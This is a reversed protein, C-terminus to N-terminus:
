DLQARAAEVAEAFGALPMTVSVPAEASFPFFRIDLTESADLAELVAAPTERLARCGDPFCVQYPIDITTDGAVLRLGAELAMGLPLAAGLSIDGGGRPVFALFTTVPNGTAEDILQRSLTCGDATCAPKWEPAATQAAAPHLSAALLLLSARLTVPM